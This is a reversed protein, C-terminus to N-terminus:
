FLIVHNKDCRQISFTSHLDEHFFTGPLTVIPFFTSHQRKKPPPEALVEEGTESQEAKSGGSRNYGIEETM